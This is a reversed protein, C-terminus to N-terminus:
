TCCDEAACTTDFAFSTRCAPTGAFWVAKARLGARTTHPLTSATAFVAVSSQHSHCFNVTTRRLGTDDHTASRHQNGPGTAVARPVLANSIQEGSRDIAGVARNRLFESSSTRWVGWVHVCSDRGGGLAQRERAAGDLRRNRFKSHWSSVLYVMSNYEIFVLPCRRLFHWAM